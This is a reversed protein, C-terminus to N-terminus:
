YSPSDCILGFYCAINLVVYGVREKNRKIHFASFCHSFIRKEAVRKGTLHHIFNVVIKDFILIRNATRNADRNTCFIEILEGGCENLRM